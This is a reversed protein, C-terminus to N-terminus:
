SEISASWSVSSEMSVHHMGREREREREFHRGEEPLNGSYNLNWKKASYQEHKTNTTQETRNISTPSDM